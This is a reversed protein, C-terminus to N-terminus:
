MGKRFFPLDGNFDYRLSLAISRGPEQIFSLPERYSANWLNRVAVVTRVRSLVSSLEIATTSFAPRALTSDVGTVADNWRLRVSFAGYPVLHPVPVTLDFTARATGADTLKEGTERNIARPMSGYLGIQAAGVRFQATGEIGDLRAQKVNEYQFRPRGYLMDLYQISILDEVDSRYASVRASQLPGADNFRVGVESSASSESVLDPNGFVTMGGHIEDHYYREELNPARFGTALHVYPEVSGFARALGGELSTHRDTVDLEKTISVPTSDAHSQLEDWRVGAEIRYHRVLPSVFAAGSFAERWAPPMSEGVGAKVNTITGNTMRTTAVTTRPGSTTERRWEGSLRLGAVGPWRMMPQVSNSFTQVHDEAATTVTGIVRHNWVYPGVTTENFSTHAVQAAALVRTDPVVGRGPRALELRDVERAQLPYTGHSGNTDSFAPLGIDYAGNHTHEYDLMTRGLQAMLRGSLNQEHNGSNAVRGEPTTLADLAGMGGGVEFGLKPGVVRLRASQSWAGDPASGRTQITFQTAGHSDILSRHTNFQVVGGLADSGFQASSAGPQLEIADLKDVAVLSSQAGHGRVGNVRVGDVLVLVRDGALGRVSIRSAWPGTKVLDVGPVGILADSATQPLFKVVKSRDLRVSTTTTRGADLVRPAEVRVPPLVTVTDAMRQTRRPALTDSVPPAM